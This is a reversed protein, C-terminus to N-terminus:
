INTKLTKQNQGLFIVNVFELKGNINTNKILDLKKTKNKVIDEIKNLKDIILIYKRSIIFRRFWWRLLWRVSIHYVHWM